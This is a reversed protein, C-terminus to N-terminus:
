VWLPNRCGPIQRLACFVQDSEPICVCQGSQDCTEQSGCGGCSGGCGDAGCRKGTCDPSCAPVTFFLSTSWVSANSFRALVWWEGAGGYPLQFPGATCVGGAACGLEAPTFTGSVYGPASLSYDLAGAVANWSFPQLIAATGSPGILAPGTPAAGVTFSMGSSWTSGSPNRALVWWSSTSGAALNFPGATCIGGSACGLEAPTFYGSVAGDVALYYDTVNGVANWTFSQLSTARGNPSVLLPATPAGGATFDLSSSWTSGYSNRSLVWWSGSFNSPIYFPGATCTGGSSCGLDASLYYGTAVGPVSLYYDTATAVANWTFAQLNSASGSPSVLTAAAPPAAVTVTFTLSTSWMGGFANRALVWWEASGGSPLSFPGATCVGGAACGLETPTFYGTVM